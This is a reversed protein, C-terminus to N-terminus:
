GPWIAGACQDRQGVDIANQPIAIVDPYDFEFADLIGTLMFREDALLKERAHLLDTFGTTLTTLLRANM